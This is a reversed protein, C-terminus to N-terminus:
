NDGSKTLWSVNCPGRAADRRSQARLEEEALSDGGNEQPEGDQQADQLDEEAQKRTETHASSSTHGTAKNPKKFRFPTVGAAHRTTWYQLIANADDLRIHHFQTLRVGEPLYIPDIFEDPCEQLRAWPIRGKGGGM